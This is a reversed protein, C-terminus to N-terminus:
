SPTTDLNPQESSPMLWAVRIEDIVWCGRMHLGSENCHGLVDSDYCGADMLADALIPLQNFARDEYIGRGLEIVDSSFWRPDFTTPQFPNGFIDRLLEAYDKTKADEVAQFSARTVGGGHECLESAAARAAYRVLAKPWGPVAVRASYKATYGAATRAAANAAFSRTFASTTVMSQRRAATNLGARLSRNAAFSRTFADTTVLPELRAVAVAMAQASILEEVTAKGDCFLEAVEVAKRSREDTILSWIHRCCAVAFLWLKREPANPIMELMQLPDTSNLWVRSLENTM